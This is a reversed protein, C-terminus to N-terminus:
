TAPLPQGALADALDEVPDDAFDTGALGLSRMITPALATVDLPPADLQNRANQGTVFLAGFERGHDGSRQREYPNQVTGLRPSAAALIPATMDWNLLIDPLSERMPGNHLDSTLAASTVIPAGTDPNV